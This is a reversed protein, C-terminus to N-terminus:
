KIEIFKPKYEEGKQLFLDLVGNEYKASIKNKDVDNPIIFHRHYGDYCIENYVIEYDKPQEQIKGTVILEDEEVKLNIDSKSVGPMDLLVHYGDTTYYVDARPAVLYENKEETKLIESTETTNKVETNM